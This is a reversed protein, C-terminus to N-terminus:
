HMFFNMLHRRHVLPWHDAILDADRPRGLNGVVLTGCNITPIEEEQSEEFVYLKLYREAEAFAVRLGVRPARSFTGGEQLGSRRGRESVRRKGWKRESARHEFSAKRSLLGKMGIGMRTGGGGEGGRVVGEGAQVGNILIGCIGCIGCFGLTYLELV